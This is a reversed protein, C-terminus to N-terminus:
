HALNWTFLAHDRQGDARAYGVLRQDDLWGLVLVGAGLQRSPSEGDRASVLLGNPRGTFSGTGHAYTLALRDGGPALRAERITLQGGPCSPHAEFLTAPRSTLSIRLGSEGPRDIRFPGITRSAIFPGQRKGCEPDIDPPVQDTISWSPATDLQGLRLYRRSPTRFFLQRGNGTWCPAEHLLGYRTVAERVQEPLPPLARAQEKVLDYLRFNALLRQDFASNSEDAAGPETTVAFLLQHGGPAVSFPKAALYDAGATGPLEQAGLALLDPHSECATLLVAAALLPLLRELLRTIPV